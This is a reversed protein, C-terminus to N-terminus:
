KGGCLADAQALAQKSIEYGKAKVESNNTGWNLWYWDLAERYIENQELLLKIDAPANLFLDSIGETCDLTGMSGASTGFHPYSAYEYTGKAAQELRQKIAAIRPNM